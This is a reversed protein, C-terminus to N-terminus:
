NSCLIQLQYNKRENDLLRTTQSSSAKLLMARRDIEEHLLVIALVVLAMWLMSSPRPHARFRFWPTAQQADLQAAGLGTFGGVVLFTM